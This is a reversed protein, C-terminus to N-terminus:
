TGRSEEQKGPEKVALVTTCLAKHVRDLNAGQMEGIELPLLIQREDYTQETSVLLAADCGSLVVGDDVLGHLVAQVDRVEACLFCLFHQQAEVGLLVVPELPHRIREM